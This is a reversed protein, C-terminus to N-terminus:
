AVDPPVSQGRRVELRDIERHMLLEVHRMVFLVDYLEPHFCEVCQVVRRPTRRLPVNERTRWKRSRRGIGRMLAESHDACRGDRHALKLQCQLVRESMPARANRGATEYRCAAIRTFTLRGM